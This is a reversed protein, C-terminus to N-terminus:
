GYQSDLEDNAEECRDCRCDLGNWVLEEEEIREVLDEEDCYFDVTVPMHRSVAM